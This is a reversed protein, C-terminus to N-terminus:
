LSALVSDVFRFHGAWDPIPMPHAIRAARPRQAAALIAERWGLGDLPHLLTACGRSVERHAPLDSAIVPTGVSLAELVPIGYGEAFSPMLLAQAGALLAALDRTPLGPAEIVHPRLGPCRDLLDTAGESEWGRRGVLVLAPTHPGLLGALERWLQLLLLHNKRGEITSCAVLYPRSAGLPMVAGTFGPEIGIPAPTVPVAPLNEAAAHARFREAVDESNTLVAAARRAVTEMRVRHRAAEGPVSYEPHEIPILDHVYFVPRIDPRGDLWSLRQPLDLRLHSTHLYIAGGQAPGLTPWTAARLRTILSRLPVGRGARGPEPQAPPPVPEALLWARLRAAAPDEGAQQGDRWREELRAVLETGVAKPLRRAGFPTLAVADRAPSGDLFRRAYALEVRDIGTPARHHLRTLLRTVDVLIPRDM